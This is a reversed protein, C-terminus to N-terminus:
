NPSPAAGMIQAMPKHWWQAKKVPTTRRVTVIQDERIQLTLLWDQGEIPEDWSHVWVPEGDRRLDQGVFGPLEDGHYPMRTLWGDVLYYLTGSSTLVTIGFHEIVPCSDNETCDHQPCPEGPIKVLDDGYETYTCYCARPDKESLKV